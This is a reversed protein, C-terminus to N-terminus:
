LQLIYRTVISVVCADSYWSDVNHLDLLAVVSSLWSFLECAQLMSWSLVLLPRLWVTRVQRLLVDLFLADGSCRLM